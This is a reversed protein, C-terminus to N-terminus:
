MSSWTGVLEELVGVIASALRVNILRNTDHAGRTRELHQKAAALLDHPSMTEAGLACESLRDFQSRTLNSPHFALQDGM